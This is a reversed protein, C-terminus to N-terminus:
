AGTLVARLKRVGTKWEEGDSEEWLELLESPETLIRDLAAVAEQRLEAPLPPLPEKPGYATTVPDGGPCQAAVLAASAIAEVAVDSDVDEEGSERVERFTAGLVEAKEEAPAKDVRYSFDAATDNDFPGIDWTGM